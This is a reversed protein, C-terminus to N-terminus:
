KEYEEWFFDIQKLLFNIRETKNEGFGIYYVISKLATWAQFLYIKRRIEDTEVLGRAKFYEKLFLSGLKEAEVEELDKRTMFKLQQLFSGLDYEFPAICVESFDIVKVKNRYINVIVNELHLDGHSLEFNKGLNMKNFRSFIDEVVKKYEHNKEKELIDSPDLKELSFSFEKIGSIKNIKMQHFEAFFKATYGVFDDIKINNKIKNLLNSGQASFYFFGQFKNIYWLPKPVGFNENNIEQWTKKIIQYAKKRTNESHGVFVISIERKKNKNNLIFINFFVVLHFKKGEVRQKVPYVDVRLLKEANEDIKKLKSNFFVFMKDKNLVFDPINKNKLFGFIMKDGTNTGFRIESRVL